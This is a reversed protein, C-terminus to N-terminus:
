YFYVAMGASLNPRIARLDAPRLRVAGPPPRGTDDAAFLVTGGSLRLAGTSDIAAISRKGRPVALPASDPGLAVPMTRLVAGAQELHMVGSDVAVALHLGADGRAQRRALAVIVGLHHKDKEYALDARARDAASMEGRLRAIETQYERRKWLLVGSAAVLVVCAAAVAAAGRGVTV